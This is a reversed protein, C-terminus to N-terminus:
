GRVSNSSSSEEVGINDLEVDDEGFEEEDPESISSEGAVACVRNLAEM